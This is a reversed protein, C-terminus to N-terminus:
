LIFIERSGCLTSLCIMDALIPPHNTSGGLQSIVVQFLFLQLACSGGPKFDFLHAPGLM